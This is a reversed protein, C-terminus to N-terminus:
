HPRALTQPALAIGLLGVGTTATSARILKARSSGVAAFRAEGKSVVKGICDYAGLQSAPSVVTPSVNACANVEAAFDLPAPKSAAEARPSALGLLAEAIAACVLIRSVQM